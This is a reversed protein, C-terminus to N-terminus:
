LHKKLKIAMPKYTAYTLEGSAVGGTFPIIKSVGKAFIDKTM